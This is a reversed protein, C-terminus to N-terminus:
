RSWCCWASASKVSALRSCVSRSAVVFLSCTAHQMNCTARQMNCCWLAYPRNLAFHMMSNEHKKTNLRHTHVQNLFSCLTLKLLFSSILFFSFFYLNKRNTRPIYSNRYLFVVFHGDVHGMLAYLHTGGTKFLTPIDTLM